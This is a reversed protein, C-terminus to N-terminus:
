LQRLQGLESVFQMEDKKAGIGIAYLLLDRKLWAVPQDQLRHGLAQELDYHPRSNEM